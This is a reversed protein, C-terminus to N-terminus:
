ARFAEMLILALVANPGRGTPDVPLSPVTAGWLTLAEGSEARTTCSVMWGPGMRWVSITAHDLELETM